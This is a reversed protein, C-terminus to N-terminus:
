GRKGELYQRWQTTLQELTIGLISEVNTEQDATNQFAEYLTILKAEGYQEVIMRCAMWSTVYNSSDSYFDQDEPLSDPVSIDRLVRRLTADTIDDEQYAVYEAFGEVLWQPTASVTVPGMAAHAFEHTLDHALEEPQASLQQPSIVIRTTAFVENDYWDPVRDYYSVAIAAVQTVRDPSSAFYADFLRQDQVATVLVKGDWGGSRVTSVTDLGQEALELLDDARGTDGSSFVVVARESPVVEIAGADWPQGNTGYPLSEDSAEDALVWRNNVYGFVPVWSAAVTTSDIGAVRYRVTVGPAYVKSEFRTFIGDSVAWSYAFSPELTYALTELPLEVLNDYLVVQQKVFDEDFTDVDTMFANRDRALVAASRRDLITQLASVTTPDTLAEVWNANAIDRAPSVVLTWAGAGALVTLLAVVVLLAAILRRSRRVVGDRM